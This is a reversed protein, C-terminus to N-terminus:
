AAEGLYGNEIGWTVWSQAAGAMSHQGRAHDEGVITVLAYFWHDPQDKLRRLMLPVAPKGMKIIQQYAPHEVIDQVSSMIATDQKWRDALLSFKEEDSLKNRGNSGLCDLSILQRTVGFIDAISQLTCGEDKLMRSVERRTGPPTDVGYTEKAEALLREQHQRQLDRSTAIAAAENRRAQIQDPAHNDLWVRGKATIQWVISRVNNYTGHAFGRQRVRGHQQHIVLAGRVRALHRQLQYNRNEGHEMTNIEPWIADM